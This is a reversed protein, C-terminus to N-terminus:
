NDFTLSKLLCDVYLLETLGFLVCLQHASLALINDSSIGNRTFGPRSKKILKISKMSDADTTTFIRHYQHAVVSSFSFFTKFM